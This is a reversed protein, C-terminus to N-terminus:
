RALHECFRVKPRSVSGTGDAKWRMENEQCGNEWKSQMGLPLEGLPKSMFIKHTTRKEEM